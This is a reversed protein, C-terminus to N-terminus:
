ALELGALPGISTAFKEVALGRRRLISVHLNPLPTNHVRDFALHQGHKFSGGAVPVPLNRNDHNNGPNSGFLVRTRDLLTHPGERTEALSELLVALQEMQALELHKLQEIKDPRGVRHSLVHCEDNVGHIHQGFGDLRIFLTVSARGCRQGLDSAIWM